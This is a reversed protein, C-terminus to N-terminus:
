SRSPPPSSVTTAQPRARSINHTSPAPPSHLTSLSHPLHPHFTPTSPSCSSACCTSTCDSQERTRNPQSLSDHSALTTLKPSTSCFTLVLAKHAAHAVHAAHQANTERVNLGLLPIGKSLFTKSHSRSSWASASTGLGGTPSVVPSGQQSGDGSGDGSGRSFGYTLEDRVPGRPTAAADEFASSGDVGGGGGADGGGDAGGGAADGAKNAGGEGGGEEGGEDGDGGSSGHQAVSEVAEAGLPAGFSALM